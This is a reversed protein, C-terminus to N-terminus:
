GKDAKVCGASARVWGGHGSAAENRGVLRWCGKNASVLRWGARFLKM